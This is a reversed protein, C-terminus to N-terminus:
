FLPFMTPISEQLFFYVASPKASVRALLDSYLHPHVAIPDRRHELYSKRFRNIDLQRDIKSRKIPSGQTQDMKLELLGMNHILGRRVLTKITMERTINSGPFHRNYSLDLRELTPNARIIKAITNASDTGLDCDIIKLTKLASYQSVTEELIQAGESGIPYNSLSLSELKIDATNNTSKGGGGGYEQQSLPSLLGSRITRAVLDRNIRLLRAGYTRLSLSQVGLRRACLMARELTEITQLCMFDLEEIELGRLADELWRLGTMSIGSRLILRKAVVLHKNEKLAQTVRLMLSDRSSHKVQVTHNTYLQDIIGEVVAEAQDDLGDM